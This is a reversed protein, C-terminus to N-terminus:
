AVKHQYPKQRNKEKRDPKINYRELIRYVDCTRKLGTSFYIDELSFGDQYMNLVLAEREKKSEPHNYYREIPKGEEHIIGTCDFRLRSVDQSFTCVVRLMDLASTGTFLTGGTDIRDRISIFRIEYQQCLNLFLSMDTLSRFVHSCKSVVVEDGMGLHMIMQKLEPRFEEERLHERVIISCGFKLMWQEDEKLFYDSNHQLIYGKKSM